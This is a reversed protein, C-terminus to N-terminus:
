SEERANFEFCYKKLVISVYEMQQRTGISIRIWNVLGLSALNKVHIKYRQKLFAICKDAQVMYISVFNTKSKVFCIGIKILQECFWDRIQNSQSCFNWYRVKEDIIQSALTEALRNVRFPLAYTVRNLLAIIDRNAVAYGIRLGALAYAKSFTRLVILNNYKNVDNVLEFKRRNKNEVFEMYAEDVVIYIGKKRTEELLDIFDKKSILTGFPNQPNCIFIIKIGDSTIKKIYALDIEFVTLPAYVIKNNLLVGSNEYGKFSLSPVVIVSNQINLGILISLIVEDLGNGVYINDKEIKHLLSISNIIKKYNTDPYLNLKELEDIIIGRAKKSIVHPSESYQLNINLEEM